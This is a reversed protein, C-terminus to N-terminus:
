YCYSYQEFSANISLKSQMPYKEMCMVKKKKTGLCTLCTSGFPDALKPTALHPIPLLGLPVSFHHRECPMGYFTVLPEM